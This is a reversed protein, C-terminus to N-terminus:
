HTLKQTLWQNVIIGGASFFFPLLVYPCVFLLVSCLLGVWVSLCMFCHVLNSIFTTYETYSLGNELVVEKEGLWRRVPEFILESQIISTIRWTALVTVLVLFFFNHM